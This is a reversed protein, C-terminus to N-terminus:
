RMADLSVFADADASLWADIHECCSERAPYVTCRDPRQEYRVVVSRLGFRRRESGTDRDGSPHLARNEPTSTADSM